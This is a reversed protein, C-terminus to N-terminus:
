YLLYFSQIKKKIVEPQEHRHKTVKVHRTFDKKHGTIHFIVDCECENQNRDEIKRNM